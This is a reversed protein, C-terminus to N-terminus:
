IDNKDYYMRGIYDQIKKSKSGNECNKARVFLASAPKSRTLRREPSFIAIAFCADLPKKIDPWATSWMERPPSGGMDLLTM